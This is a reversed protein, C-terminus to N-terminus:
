SSLRRAPRSRSGRSAAALSSGAASLKRMGPELPIQRSRPSRSLPRQKLRRATGAMPVRAGIVPFHRARFCQAAMGIRPFTRGPHLTQFQQAHSGVGRGPAGGSPIEIGHPWRIEFPIRRAARHSPEACASRGTRRAGAHSVPEAPSPRKSWKRRNWRASIPVSIPAHNADASAGGAAAM